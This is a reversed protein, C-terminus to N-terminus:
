TKVADGGGWIVVAPKSEDQQNERELMPFSTEMTLVTSRLV